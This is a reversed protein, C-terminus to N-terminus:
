RCMVRRSVVVIEDETERREIPAMAPPQRACQPSQPTALENTNASLLAESVCRRTVRWSRSSPDLVEFHGENRIQHYEMNASAAAVVFRTSQSTPVIADELGHVAYFRSASLARDFAAFESTREDRLSSGIAPSLLEIPSVACALATATARDVAEGRSSSSSTLFSNVAGRGLNLRRAELLDLVGGVACVCCPRRTQPAATIRLVEDVDKRGTASLASIPANPNAETASVTNTRSSGKPSGRLGAWM